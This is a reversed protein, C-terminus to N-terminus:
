TLVGDKEIGFGCPKNGASLRQFNAQHIDTAVQYVFGAQFRRDTDIRYGSGYVTDAFRHQSISRGPGINRLLQLVMDAPARQNNEISLKIRPNQLLCRCRM